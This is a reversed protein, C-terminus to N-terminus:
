GMRKGALDSSEGGTVRGGQKRSAKDQKRAWGLDEKKLVIRQQEELGLCQGWGM